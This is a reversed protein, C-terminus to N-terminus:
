IVAGLQFIPLYMAIVLAGILGGLVIMIFPEILAALMAIAQNVDAEYFEAAKNLMHALTGSEEGIAVMQTLLSPFRTRTLAVTLSNGNHVDDRIRRSAELYVTNGATSGVADLASVLPVGAACLAALTRSWRAVCTHRLLIGFLPLKLLLTDVMRQMTISRKWYIFCVTASLLPGSAIAPWYAIVWDSLAIVALTALPLEAGFSAFIDRLAPVVWIMIVASVILAVIIIALPYILAARVRSKLAAHREQDDALRTLVQELIGAQEGAAVLSCFLSDFHRPFKALAASLSTGTAIDDHLAHLLRTVAGNTNSHALLELTHLLPVGANLMTVLQRTLLTLDQSRVRERLARSPKIQEARIGRRRLTASVMAPGSSRMIGHQMSGDAARGQWTYDRQQHRTSM